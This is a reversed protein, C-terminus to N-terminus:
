RHSAARAPASVSAVATASAAAMRCSLGKSRTSAPRLESSESVPWTGTSTASSKPRGKAAPTRSSSTVSPAKVADSSVSSPYQVTLPSSGAASDVASRSQAGDLADGSSYAPTASSRM